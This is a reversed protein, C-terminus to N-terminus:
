RSLGIQRKQSFVFVRLHENEEGVEDLHEAFLVLESLLDDRCRRNVELSEVSAVRELIDIRKKQGRSADKEAALHFLEAYNGGISQRSRAGVDDLVLEAVGVLLVIRIVGFM